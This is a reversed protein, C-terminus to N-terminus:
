DKSLVRFSMSLYKYDKLNEQFGLNISLIKMEVNKISYEDQRTDKGLHMMQIAPAPEVQMNPGLDQGFLLM